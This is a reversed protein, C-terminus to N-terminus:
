LVGSIRLKTKGYGEIFLSYVFLYVFLIETFHHWFSSSLLLSQSELKSWYFGTFNNSVPSCLRRVQKSELLFSDMFDVLPLFLSAVRLFTGDTQVHPLLLLLRKRSSVTESPVFLPCSAHVRADGLQVPLSWSWYHDSESQASYSARITECEQQSDAVQLLCGRSFRIDLSGYHAFVPAHISHSRADRWSQRKDM